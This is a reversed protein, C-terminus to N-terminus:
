AAEDSKESPSLGPQKQPVPQKQQLQSKVQEVLLDRRALMMRLLASVAILGGVILLLIEWREM